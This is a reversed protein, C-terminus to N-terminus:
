MAEQKLMAEVADIGAQTLKYQKRAQKTKGSKKVQIALAPKRDNLASFANTINPIVHGLNQLEKNAAQGSFHEQGQGKQLWDGAVLAKEPNANPSTANFLDAFTAFESNHVGPENEPEQKPKTQAASPNKMGLKDTVWSLVRARAQEDELGHLAEFVTQMVTLENDPM